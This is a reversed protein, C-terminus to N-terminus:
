GVGVRYGEEPPSVYQATVERSSEGMERLKSVLEAASAADAIITRGKTAVWRGEYTELNDPVRLAHIRRAPRPALGMDGAYLARFLRRRRTM